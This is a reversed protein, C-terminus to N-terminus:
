HARRHHHRRNLLGPETQMVRLVDPGDRPVVPAVHVIPVAPRDRLLEWCRRRGATRGCDSGARSSVIAGWSRPLRAESFMDGPRRGAGNINNEKQTHALFGGSRRVGWGFGARWVSDVRARLCCDRQAPFREVRSRSVCAPTRKGHAGSQPRWPVASPSPATHPPCYNPAPPLSCSVNPASGLTWCARCCWRAKQLVMLACLCLLMRRGANLLSCVACGSDEWAKQLGASAWPLDRESSANSSVHM